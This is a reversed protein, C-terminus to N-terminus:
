SVLEAIFVDLATEGEMQSTKDAHDIILLRHYTEELDAMKYRQAQRAIKEAVFPPINVAQAIDSVSGRQDLIERALLLLRFQRVVMGFITPLDREELLRHLLRQATKGDRGGLADTMKFVDAEATLVTLELVDELEVPRQYNVYALLKQIEQEALQTDSGILEALRMAAQPTFKGGVERAHTQIWGPMEAPAPLAFVREYVRSGAQRTWKVLFNKEQWTLWSKREFADEIVLVLATTPPVSDLLETLKKKGSESTYRALPHELIVLRREALFPLSGVATRLDEDSANRGDLRTLNLDATGPDGLRAVM